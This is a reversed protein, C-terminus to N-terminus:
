AQGLQQPIPNIKFHMSILSYVFAKLDQVLYFFIKLGEADNSNDVDSLKGIVSVNFSKRVGDMEIDLEQKGGSREPKPWMNGDERTIESDALIRKLEQLVARSVYVQKRIITEGRYHTNNAYRLLGDSSFEFELFEHGFKGKHGTYYRLHFTSDFPAAAAAASANTAPTSTDM